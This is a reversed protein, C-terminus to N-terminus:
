PVDLNTGLVASEVVPLDAAIARSGHEKGTAAVTIAVALTLASLSM